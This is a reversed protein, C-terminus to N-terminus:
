EKLLQQIDLRQLEVEVQIDVELHIVLVLLVVEEQIDQDQLVEQIDLGQLVEKIGQQQLEVEELIDQDQLVEELHIGVVEEQVVQLIDQGLLEVEQTFQGQLVVEGQIVLGLLDMVEQIVLEQLVVTTDLEVEEQTDLEQDLHVLLHNLLLEM